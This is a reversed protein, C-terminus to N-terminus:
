GRAITVDEQAIILEDVEYEASHGTWVEDKILRGVVNQYAHRKAQAKHGFQVKHARRLHTFSLSESVNRSFASDITSSYLLINSRTLKSISSCLSKIRYQNRYIDQLLPYAGNIPHLYENLTQFQRHTSSDFATIQRAFLTDKVRQCAVLTSRYTRLQSYFRIINLAHLKKSMRMKMLRWWLQLTLAAEAPFKRKHRTYLLHSYMNCENMSLSLSNNSATTLFGFTLPGFLAGLLIFVQGALTVPHSNGYGITTLTYAVVWYNSWIADLSQREAIFEILGLIVVMLGCAMAILLFGYRAVCCRMVFGNSHEVTTVRTFIHTRMDSFPCLWYLLRVAQYSRLFLCVYLLDYASSETVYMQPYPIFLHFAVELVCFCIIKPCSCLGKHLASGPSFASQVSELYDVYSAWYGVILIVQILSLFCVGARLSDLKVMNGSQQDELVVIYGVLAEACVCAVSASVIKQLFGRLRQAKKETRPGCSSHMQDMHSRFTHTVKPTISAKARTQTSALPSLATGPEPAARKRASAHLYVM